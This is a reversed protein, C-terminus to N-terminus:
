VCCLFLHKQAISGRSRCQCQGRVTLVSGPIKSRSELTPQKYRAQGYESVFRDAFTQLKCMCCADLESIRFDFTRLKELRM